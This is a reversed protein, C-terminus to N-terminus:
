QVKCTAGISVYICNVLAFKIENNLFLIITLSSISFFTVAIMSNLLIFKSRLDYEIKDFTHGSTLFDEIGGM